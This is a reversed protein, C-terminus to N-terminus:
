TGELVRGAEKTDECLLYNNISDTHILPTTCKINLRKILVSMNYGESKERIELSMSDAPSHQTAEKLPHIKIGKAVKRNLM